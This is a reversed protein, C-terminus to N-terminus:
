RKKKNRKWYNAVEKDLVWREFRSEGAYLIFTEKKKMKIREVYPLEISPIFDATGSLASISVVPAKYHMSPFAIYDISIDGKRMEMVSPGTKVIVTNAKGKQVVRMRGYVLSFVLIDGANVVNEVILLTNEAIRVSIGGPKVQLEAFAGASTQITDYNQLTVGGKPIDNPHLFLYEM